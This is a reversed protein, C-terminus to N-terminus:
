PKTRRRGFWAAMLSELALLGLGGAVLARWLEGREPGAARETKAPEASELFDVRLGPFFGGAAERPIRELDGERPDVNVAFRLTESVSGATGVASEVEVAYVGPLRTEAIEQLRFREAGTEAAAPSAIELPRRTGRPDTWAARRPFRSLEVLIPEGIAVERTPVEGATLHRFLEFVLPLFTKPSEPIKTWAADITTTLLAAKGRGFPKEVLIPSREPDDLRALVRTGNEPKDPESRFFEFVPVEKLLPSWKDDRFFAFAPHDLEPYAIRYYDIRRSTVSQRELLKSPLLGDPGGKRLVANYYSPDIRDGLTLLLARGSAVFGELRTVSGEPFGEVNALVVLDFDAVLDPNAFFRPRDVATPLFPLGPEAVGKAEEGQLIAQLYGTESLFLEQSSPDGDVLLVRAPPRVWLPFVREDDPPLADPELSAGAAHSGPESVTVTTSAEREQGAPIELTQSDIRNGDLAFRVRVGMRDSNGFNRVRARLVIPSGAFNPELEDPALSTIALNSPRASGPGVDVIRVRLGRDALSSLLSQPAKTGEAEEPEEQLFSRKQLDSIWYVTIEGGEGFDEAAKRVWDLTAAFSSSEFTPEELGRLAEKAQSPDRWSLVTPNRKALLLTARDGQEPKLKELIKLGEQVGLQFPVDSGERYGMSYSGDLVLIAEKRREGAPAVPTEAALYPRAVALALIAVAACRALLLLLNEMRLRRRTRKHAALLFAMAAWPIRLYRRRNLLHIILPVLLLATGWLLAPHALGGM